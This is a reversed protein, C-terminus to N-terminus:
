WSVSFSGFPRNSTKPSSSGGTFGEQDRGGAIEPCVRGKKSSAEGVGGEALAENRGGTSDSTASWGDSGLDGGAGLGVDGVEEESDDLGGPGGPGGPLGPGGPGGPPGPGGPGGPGGGGGGGLGIAWGAGAGAGTM